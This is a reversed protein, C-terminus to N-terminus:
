SRSSCPLAGASQHLMRSSSLIRLLNYRVQRSQSGNRCSEERTVQNGPKFTGDPYGAIYGASQAKGVESAFWDGAKVDSFNASGATAFGFAKNTMTAFEARTVANDPKFTGDPYGSLVGKSVLTQIQSQAWHGQIDSPNAAVCGPPNSWVYHDDYVSGPHAL